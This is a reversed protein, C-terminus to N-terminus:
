KTQYEEALFTLFQTQTEFMREYPKVSTVSYYKNNTWLASLRFRPKLYQRHYTYQVKKSWRCVSVSVQMLESGKHGHECIYYRRHVTSSYSPREFKIRELEEDQIRRINLRHPTNIDCAYEIATFMDGAKEASLSICSKIEETEEKENTRKKDSQVKLITSIAHLPSTANDLLDNPYPPTPTVSTDVTVFKTILQNNINIKRAM